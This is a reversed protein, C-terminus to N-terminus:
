FRTTPEDLQRPRPTSAANAGARKNKSSELDFGFALRPQTSAEEGVHLVPM